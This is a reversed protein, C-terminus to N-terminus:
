DISVWIRGGGFAIGAPTGGVTVTATVRGTSPNIRSVTGDATSIWVSGAGVAIGSPQQGVTTTGSVANLNPNIRWVRDTLADIVWVSGAGIAIGAGHFPLKVLSRGGSVADIRVLGLDGALWASRFGFAIPGCCDNATLAFRRRPAPSIRWAAGASTAWLARRTATVACCPQVMARPNGVPGLDITTGTSPADPEFAALLNSSGIMWVVGRSFAIDSAGTVAPFTRQLKGTALNIRSLTQENTNLVWASGAGVTVANPTNGVSTYLAIRNTTPDIAVLSNPQALAAASSKTLEHAGIAVAAALLLAGAAILVIERRRAHPRRMRRAPARLGAGDESRGAVDASLDLAPDQALIRQELRQLEKSPEVGLGDILATRTSRYVELAEAQRECRYLAHMLLNRLRERLPHSAVLSELEAVLDRHRGLALDAEIREEIAELRLEELRGIENQSWAEYEFDALPRGRWLELASRLTSAAEGPAQVRSASLLGEFRSADTDTVRLLYGSGQTLIAESPLARRLQSVYGQIVKSATSPAQEGWLADILRDTSVVENPHLVLFALLARQRGQGLQIQHGDAWVELMGLTRFQM